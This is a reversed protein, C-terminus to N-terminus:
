AWVHDCPVTSFSVDRRECKRIDSFLIDKKIWEYPMNAICFLIQILLLEYLPDIFNM